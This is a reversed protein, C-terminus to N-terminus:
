VYFVKEVCIYLVYLKCIATPLGHANCGGPPLIANNCTGFVEIFLKEYTM